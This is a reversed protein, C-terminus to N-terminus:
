KKTELTAIEQERENIHRSKDTLSQEKSDLM